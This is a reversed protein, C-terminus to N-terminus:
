RENLFEKGRRTLAYMKISENKTSCKSSLYCASCQISIKELYGEDVMFDMMALLMSRNMDLYGALEDITKGKGIESLIKKMKTM